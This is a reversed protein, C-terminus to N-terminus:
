PIGDFPIVFPWKQPPKGEKVPNSRVYEIARVIAAENNLFVKWQGRGWVTPLRGASVQLHAFPHLNEKLLQRTAEGKLLNALREVSYRHRAIALHVHEPLIACAWVSLDTRDIVKAFGRGVARAQLGNLRVPPYRLKTKAALRAQHDHPQDAVSRRTEVRTARGFRLLGQSGVYESWSGRPDNPLWFGYASIVMHYGLVMRAITPTIPVQTLIDPSM